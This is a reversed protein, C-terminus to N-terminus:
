RTTRTSRPAIPAELEGVYRGPASVGIVEYGADRFAVLQPLLLLALSMDVTTLHVLM